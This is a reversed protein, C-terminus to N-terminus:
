QRLMKEADNNERHNLGRRVCTFGQMRIRSSRGDLFFYLRVELVAKVVNKDTADGLVLCVGFLLVAVIIGGKM